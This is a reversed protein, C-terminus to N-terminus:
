TQRWLCQLNAMDSAHTDATKELEQAWKGPSCTHNLSGTWSATLIQLSQLDRCPAPDHLRAGRAPRSPPQMTCTSSCRQLITLTRLTWTTQLTLKSNKYATGSFSASHGAQWRMTSAPSEIKHLNLNETCPHPPAAPQCDCNDKSTRTLSHLHNTPRM